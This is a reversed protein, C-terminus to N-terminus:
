KETSNALLLARFTVPISIDIGLCALIFGNFMSGADGLFIKAPSWNYRLFGLLGGMLALAILASTVQHSFIAIALFASASIFSIGGCLGDMADLYNVANMLGVIWLILILVDWNSGTLIRAKQSLALFLLAAIIQGLLKHSPSLGRKDDLLGLSVVLAGGVLIGVMDSSFPLDFLGLALILAISFGIFVALGGFLPTPKSHIK